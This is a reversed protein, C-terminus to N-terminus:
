FPSTEDDEGATRKRSSGISKPDVFKLRSTDLKGFASGASGGKDVVVDGARLQWIANLSIGVGASQNSFSFGSVEVVVHDGGRIQAPDCKERHPGAVTMPQFGTKARFVVRGRFIDNKFAFGSGDKGPEDGDRLPDHFRGSLQRKGTLTEAHDGVLKQLDKLSPEDPDVAVLCNFKGNEDPEALSPYAIIGVVAVTRKLAAPDIKEGSKALAFKNM